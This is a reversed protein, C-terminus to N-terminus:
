RSEPMKRVGAVARILCFGCRREFAEVPRRDQARGVQGELQVEADVGCAQTLRPPERIGFATRLIEWEPSQTCPERRLFALDTEGGMGVRPLFGEPDQHWIELFSHAAGCWKACGLLSPVPM